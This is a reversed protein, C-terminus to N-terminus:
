AEIVQGLYPDIVRVSGAAFYSFSTDDVVAAPAVNMNVVGGANLTGDVATAFVGGNYLWTIKDGVAEIRLKDGPNVPRSDIGYLNEPAGGAAIIEGNGDADRGVIFTFSTFSDLSSRVEIELTGGNAIAGITAEVYQDAPLEFASWYTSNTLPGNVQTGCAKRSKIQFAPAGTSPTWHLPDLPNEDPRQFTDEVLKDFEFLLPASGVIVVDGLSPNTDGAPAAVVARVKGLYPNPVGAPASGVVHVTGLFPDGEGGAPPTAVVRVSGLFTSM